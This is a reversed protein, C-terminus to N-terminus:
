DNYSMIRYLEPIDIYTRLWDALADYQTEKYDGYDPVSEVDGLYPALLHEIM